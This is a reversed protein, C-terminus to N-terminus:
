WKALRTKGARNQIIIFRIQLLTLLWMVPGRAPGCGVMAVRPKRHWRWGREEADSWACAPGPPAGLVRLLKKLGARCSLPVGSESCAFRNGAIAEGNPDEKCSALYAFM